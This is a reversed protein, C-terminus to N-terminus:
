PRGGTWSKYWIGFRYATLKRPDLIGKEVGRKAEAVTAGLAKTKLYDVIAQADDATTLVPLAM